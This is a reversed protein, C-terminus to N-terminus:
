RPCRRILKGPTFVIPGDSIGRVYPDIASLGRTGYREANRRTLFPMRGFWGTRWWAGFLYASVRPWLASVAACLLLGGVVAFVTTTSMEM